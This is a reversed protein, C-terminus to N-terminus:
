SMSRSISAASRMAIVSWRAKSDSQLDTRSVGALTQLISSRIVSTDDASLIEIKADSLIYLSECAQQYSVAHGRAALGKRLTHLSFM